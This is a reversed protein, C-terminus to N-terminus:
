PLVVPGRERSHAALTGRARGLVAGLPIRKRAVVLVHHGAEVLHLVAQNEATEIKLVAACEVHPADANEILVVILQENIPTCGDRPREILCRGGVGSVHDPATVDGGRSSDDGSDLILQQGVALNGLLHDDSSTASEVGRKRGISGTM